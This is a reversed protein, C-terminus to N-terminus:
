ATTDKATEPEPNEISQWVVAEVKKNYERKNQIFLTAAENNAPSNPNPDCLLSQFIELNM